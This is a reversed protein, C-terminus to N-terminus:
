GSGTSNGNAAHTPSNKQVLGLIPSATSTSLASSSICQGARMQAPLQNFLRWAIANMWEMKEAESTCYAHYTRDPMVFGFCHPKGLTGDEVLHRCLKLDLTNLPKENAPEDFYKLENGKLTFWRIKWSKVNGGRKTMFSEKNTLGIKEWNNCNVDCDEFATTMLDMRTVSDMSTMIAHMIQHATIVDGLDPHNLSTFTGLEKLFVNYKCLRLLPAKLYVELVTSSRFREPNTPCEQKWGEYIRQMTSMCSIESMVILSRSHNSSYLDYVRFADRMQIFCHGVHNKPDRVRGEPLAEQLLAFFAKHVEYMEDINGFLGRVQGEEIEYEILNSCKELQKKMKESMFKLIQLYEKETELLEELILVRIKEENSLNDYTAKRPIDSGAM